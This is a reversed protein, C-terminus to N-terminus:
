CILVQYGPRSFASNASPTIDRMAGMDPVTSVSQHHSHDLEEVPIALKTFQLLYNIICYTSLLKVSSIHTLSCSFLISMLRTVVQDLDISNLLLMIAYAQLQTVLSHAQKIFM